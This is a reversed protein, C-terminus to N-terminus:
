SIKQFNSKVFYACWLSSVAMCFLARFRKIFNMIPPVLIALCKNVESDTVSPCGSLIHSWIDSAINSANNSFSGCALTAQEQPMRM